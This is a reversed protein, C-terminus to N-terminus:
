RQHKRQSTLADAATSMRPGHLLSDGTAVHIEYAPADRLTDIHSERLAAILLRFRAIATAYPNIDVGYVGNLARQVLDREGTGPEKKQWRDLLLHFGGLLFHGSGCTPDIMRTEALGFEEIAPLLTRELIFEEIFDPTQLLAYRKRVSESLDQYLDGLFRTDWQEDTFDHVLAGTAPVIARWFQMLEKAADGSIPITWVPNHREDYLAAM